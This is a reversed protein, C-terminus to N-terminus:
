ASPKKIPRRGLRIKQQKMTTGTLPGGDYALAEESGNHPENWLLDDKRKSPNARDTGMSQMKIQDTSREASGNADDSGNQTDFRSRIIAAFAPACGIIVAMSTEIVTWMQLWKPDPAKPVGDKVGVQVVRLTAFLICIWGSGFLVFVGLKEIKPMQLTWTMRFPLFMVALDTAVDAAYAFWLSVQGRKQERPNACMGQNYKAKHDDCVFITTMCSGIYSLICFALIGWWVVTFKHPTQSLLRRYLTLLSLKVLTLTSYFLLQGATLWRYVMGADHLIEPYPATEGRQVSEARYLPGNEKFYMVCMAVYCIYSFCCFFDHLEFPKRKTVRVIIRSVFFLSTLSLMATNVRELHSRSMTPPPGTKDWTVNSLSDSSM